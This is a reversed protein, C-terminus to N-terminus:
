EIKGVPEVGIGVSIDPYGVVSDVWRVPFSLLNELEAGATLLQQYQTLCSNGTDPVIGEILRGVNEYCGVAIDEYGITVAWHRVGADHLVRAIASEDLRPAAM